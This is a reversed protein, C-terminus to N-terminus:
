PVYVAEFVRKVIAESNVGEAEAEYTLLIRHRLVDMAVSKVDEPTVFPRQSLFAHAKSAYLLYLSARPSAGFRILGKADVKFKEPNRTASIIRVIYDEIKPDSYVEFVLKQLRLVDNPTLVKKISPIDGKGMRSLIAKEDELSPYEVVVKMLFRDVQAEPLPYTGEQEIPNETAMVFFVDPLKFTIDGITVQREQMAELLASQVKAPARNIEDALLIETFIPGKKPEFKSEKPNFIQTGTLDSPLLDPTFQIRKFDCDIAKSLTKVALTKALGPVGEVLIHGKALLAIIMRKILGEQGVIVRSVEKLLTAVLISEDDIKGKLEKLNVDMNVELISIIFYGSPFPFNSTKTAAPKLRRQNIEEGKLLPCPSTEESLRVKSV